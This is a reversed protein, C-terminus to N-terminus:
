AAEKTKVHILNANMSTRKAVHVQSVKVATVLLLDQFISVNETTNALLGQTFSNFFNFRKKTLM